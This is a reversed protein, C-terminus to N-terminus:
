LGQAYPSPELAVECVAERVEVVGVGHHVFHTQDGESWLVHSTLDGRGAAGRTGRKSNTQDGSSTMMRTM